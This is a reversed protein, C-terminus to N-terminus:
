KTPKRILHVTQILTHILAGLQVVKKNLVSLTRITFGELIEESILDVTYEGFKVMKGVAPWYQFSSEQFVINLEHLLLPIGTMNKTLLGSSILVHEHEWWDCCCVPM